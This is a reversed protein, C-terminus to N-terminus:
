YGGTEGHLPAYQYVPNEKKMRADDVAHRMTELDSILADYKVYDTPANSLDQRGKLERAANTLMQLESSFWQLVQEENAGSVVPQSSAVDNANCFFAVGQLLIATGLSRWM